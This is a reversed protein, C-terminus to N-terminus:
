SARMEQSLTAISLPVSFRQLNDDHTALWDSLKQGLRTLDEDM